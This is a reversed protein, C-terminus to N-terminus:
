YWVSVFVRIVNASFSYLPEQGAVSGATVDRFDDYDFQIHDLAFNATGKDIFKWGGQLFDYSVELGITQSSFTSLEKDRAMFNQSNRAPFLDSYFDANSQNYSRYKIDFIWKDGMPHTYGIEYDTANIGWSDAFLRAGGYIAARYPLYYRLRVAGTNSTRTRPYVESQYLANDPNGPDVYRVSRYPNNLYGEDAIGEYAVGLIMNKTLVQSLTVRYSQSTSAENFNPDPTGNVNRRVTNDGASYGLTVTTLAGFMDQSIAFSTTTADYDSEESNTYSVSMTSNGHLYDIGVTNETREESYPSATSIVDISASSVSDVYYNAMVSISDGISKRVLISPGNVDVGGGDYSHYLADARDVPLVGAVAQQWLTCCGLLVFLPWRKTVVVVVVRQWVPEAHAKVRM